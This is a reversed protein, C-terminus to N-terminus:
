PDDDKVDIGNWKDVKVSLKDYMEHFYETSSQFWPKYCNNLFEEIEDPSFQISVNGKKSRTFKM